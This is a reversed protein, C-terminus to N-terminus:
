RGKGRTATEEEGQQLKKEAKAKIKQLGSLESIKDRLRTREENISQQMNGGIDFIVIPTIKGIFETPLARQAEKPLLPRVKECTTLCNTKLIEFASEKRESVPKQLKEIDPNGDGLVGVLTQITSIIICAEEKYEGLKKRKAEMSKIEAVVEAATRPDAAAAEKANEKEKEKGQLGAISKM